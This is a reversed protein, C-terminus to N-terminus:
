GDSFINTLIPEDKGFLPSSINKKFGGGVSKRHYKQYFLFFGGVFCIGFLEKM